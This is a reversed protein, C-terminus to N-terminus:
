KQQAGSATCFCSQGPDPVYQQRAGTECDCLGSGTSQGAGSPCQCTGSRGGKVEEMEQFLLSEIQKLEM